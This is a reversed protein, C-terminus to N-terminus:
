QAKLATISHHWLATRDHDATAHCSEQGGLRQAGCELVHRDDHSVVHSLRGTVAAANGLIPVDVSHPGCPHLGDLPPNWHYGVTPTQDVRQGETWSMASPLHSV